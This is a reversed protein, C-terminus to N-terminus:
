TQKVPEIASCLWDSIAELMPDVEGIAPLLDLVLQPYRARLADLLRPLDQKLHGGQAMFLPAITIKAHGAAALRELVEDLAPPMLELFALEVTLAPCRASVRQRIKRFPIAWEPDRAGHAFLVLASTM